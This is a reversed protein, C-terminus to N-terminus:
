SVKSSHKNWKPTVRVSVKSAPKMDLIFTEIKAKVDKDLNVLDASVTLILTEQKGKTAARGTKTILKTRIDGFDEGSSLRKIITQYKPALKESSIEYLHNYSPPLFNYDEEKFLKCGAIQRLKSTTAPGIGRNQLQKALEKAFRIVKYQFNGKRHIQRSFIAQSDKRIVVYLSGKKSFDKLSPDYTTRVVVQYGRIDFIFSAADKTYPVHAAKSLEIGFKEQYLNWMKKTERIFGLSRLERKLYRYKEKPDKIKSM